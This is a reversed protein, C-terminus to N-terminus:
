GRHYPHNALITVARYIQESLMARALMHPWTMAGLSLQLNAQKRVNEALGDAGGILFVIERCGEDRRASLWGAFAESTFSRGTGDLAVAVAGNSIQALLLEGERQKRAAPRDELERVELPGIGISAGLGAVRQAYENTLTTEPADRRGRGIAAIVIRM